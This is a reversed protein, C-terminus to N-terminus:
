ANKLSNGKSNNQPIKEQKMISNKIYIPAKKYRCIKESNLDKVAKKAYKQKKYLNPM